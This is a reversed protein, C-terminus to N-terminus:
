EPNALDGRRVVSTWKDISNIRKFNKRNPELEKLLFDNVITDEENCSVRFEYNRKRTDPPIKPPAVTSVASSDVKISDPAGQKEVRQQDNCSIIALAFMLFIPVAKHYNM